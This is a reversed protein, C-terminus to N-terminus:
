DTKRQSACIWQFQIQIFLFRHLLGVVERMMQYGGKPTYIQCKICNKKRLKKVGMHFCFM